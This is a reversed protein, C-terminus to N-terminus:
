HLDKKDLNVWKEISGTIRDLEVDTLRFCFAPTGEGAWTGIINFEYFEVAEEYDMDMKQLIEIVKAEDYLIVDEQGYRRCIGIIAADLGEARLM